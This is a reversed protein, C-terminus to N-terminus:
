VQHWVVWLGKDETCDPKNAGEGTDDECGTEEVTSSLYFEDQM